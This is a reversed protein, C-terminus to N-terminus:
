RKNGIVGYVAIALMVPLNKLLPGLPDLWLQPLAVGIAVTYGCVIVLQVLAARAVSRGFLLEAAVLIDLVSSGIRLPDAWAMPLGLSRALAETQPAGYALGLWASALWMLILTARLAPALFFLRAHWRDQVQAPRDRLAAGLSRPVSGIARAFAESDGANGAVMQTLSNTAIPGDGVFDGIRGLLRMFPMPIQVFRAPGFGLWARYRELLHKLSITEPGVPELTQRPPLEGECAIRVTQALDNVHIPTFAFDGQGPLPVVWPLGAMGRLLSTGGYSGDGYVLSPRLITCDLGSSRLAAEGALKSISYDTAVDDRASIASILVVRQVAATIAAAHLAKPMDVHVAEMHPGRLVGAANVVVDVSTLHISWDEPRVTKALDLAVFTAEPFAAALAQTTRAVGVVDHGAALLEAVIHRGIFGGAGLVLIRM